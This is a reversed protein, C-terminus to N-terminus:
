LVGMGLGSILLVTKMNNAHIYYDSLRSWFAIGYVKHM